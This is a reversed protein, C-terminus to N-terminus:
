YPNSPELSWARSESLKVSGEAFIQIEDGKKEPYVRRCLAQRNNAYVEIVSKDIFVSLHLLHDSGPSFPAAERAPWGKCTGHRTDLVLEQSSADYYVETFESGDSSGRVRVGFRVAKSIDAELDIECSLRDIGEVPVAQDTLESLSLDTEQYRLREVEQAPAMCLVQDQPDLWLVRPLGFVGSWGRQRVDEPDDRLWAWMIQRGSPDVLAEPAFYASDVWSMRGHSEPFFLDKEKDYTGIYYQCGKNHSIFLQLYKGSFPGGDRSTSLPLFSPCMDDESEETWRNSVDRQYFRHVYEWHKLDRSRYLDTWDGKQDKPSDEGRGFHNLVLLNGAQVYYWGDKKWINSPDAAAVPIVKGDPLQVEGVGGFSKCPVIYDPLIEWEEYPPDSVAIRLGGCDEETAVFDWFTLYAKGDDDVFGGGSYCGKAIKGATIADQHFRWHFLDLSTLHAWCYGKTPHLYLYMLHYKGDAYFAGNPDGPQGLAEPVAFHYGPRDPDRLVSERFEKVGASFHILDCSM